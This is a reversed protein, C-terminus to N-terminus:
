TLAPVLTDCSGDASPGHPGGGSLFELSVLEGTTANITLRVTGTGASLSIPAGNKDKVLYNGSVSQILTITGDGNDIPVGNTQAASGHIMIAKGSAPNTWISTFEGANLSVGSSKVIAVGSFSFDYNLDLGCISFTGSDSGKVQTVTPTAAVGGAPVALAVALACLGTITLAKAKM